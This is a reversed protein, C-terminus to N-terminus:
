WGNWSVEIEIRLTTEYRLFILIRYKFSERYTSRSDFLTRPMLLKNQNMWYAIGDESETLWKGGTHCHGVVGCYVQNRIGRVKKPHSKHTTPGTYM